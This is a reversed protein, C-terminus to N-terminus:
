KQFDGHMTRNAFLVFRLVQTHGIYPCGSYFDIKAVLRSSSSNGLYCFSCKAVGVKLNYEGM